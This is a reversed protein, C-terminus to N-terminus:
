RYIAIITEEYTERSSREGRGGEKVAEEEKGTEGRRKSALDLNFIAIRIRKSASLTKCSQMCQATASM